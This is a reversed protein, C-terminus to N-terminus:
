LLLNNLFMFWSLHRLSILLILLNLLNVSLSNSLQSHEIGPWGSPSWKLLDSGFNPILCVSLIFDHEKYQCLLKANEHIVKHKLISVQHLFALNNQIILGLNLSDNIFQVLLLILSQLFGPFLHVLYVITLRAASQPRFILKAWAMNTNVKTFGTTFPQNQPTLAQFIQRCIVLQENQSHNTKIWLSRSYTWTIKLM